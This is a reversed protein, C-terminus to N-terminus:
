DVPEMWSFDYVGEESSSITKRVLLPSPRNPLQVQLIAQRNDPGALFGTHTEFRVVKVPKGVPLTAIHQNNPPCIDQLFVEILWYPTSYFPDFHDTWRPREANAKSIYIKHPATLTVTQGVWPALDPDTSRNEVCSALTIVALLTITATQGWRRWNQHGNVM